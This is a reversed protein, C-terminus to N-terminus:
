IKDIVNKVLEKDIMKDVIKHKTLDEKSIIEILKWEPDNFHKQYIKENGIPTAINNVVLYVTSFKPVRVLKMLKIKNINYRFAYGFHFNWALRKVDIDYHDLIEWWEGEKYNFLMVAHNNIRETRQYIGNVPNEWGYVTVQIPATKLAQMLQAAFPPHAWEYNVNYFNLWDLGEDFLVQPIIGFYQERTTGTFTWRGQDITGHLKRISDGVKVFTNGKITTESAVVTFRDSRNIIKGYKFNHLTELCNLASFSVCGMTDFNPYHQYEIAPRFNSWDGSPNIPTEDIASVGFQWDSPRPEEIILGFNKPYKRHKPM